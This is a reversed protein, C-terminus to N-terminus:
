SRTVCVAMAWRYVASVLHLDKNVTPASVGPVEVERWRDAAVKFKRVTEKPRRSRLRLAKRSKQRSDAWSMLDGPSVKALLKGAWSARQLVGIRYADDALSSARKRTTAHAIYGACAAKFTLRASNDDGFCSALVEAIPTGVECLSRARRRMKDAAAWTSFPGREFRNGEALFRVYFTRGRRRIAGWERTKRGSHKPPNSDAPPPDNPTM